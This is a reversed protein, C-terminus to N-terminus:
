GKRDRHRDFLGFLKFMPLVVVAVVVLGILWGGIREGAAAWQPQSALFQDLVFRGVRAILYALAILGLTILLKRNRSQVAAIELAPM